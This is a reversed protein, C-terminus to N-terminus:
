TARLGSVDLTLTHELTVETCNDGPGIRDIVMFDSATNLALSFHHWTGAHYNVGQGPAALFAQIKEEDLDGPPAVVVAFPQPGLPFFAQSSLPHCEMLSIPIPTPLPQSRFISVGARGDEASVDLKALDHFRKSHGHNIEICNDANGAQIVDGYPAFSEATLPQLSLSRASQNM